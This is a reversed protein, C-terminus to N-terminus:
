SREDAGRRRAIVVLTVVLVAAGAAIKARHPATKESVKHTVPAAKEALRGMARQVPEPTAARVRRGVAKTQQRAAAVKERARTKVDLKESLADVTAALEARAEAIDARVADAADVEGSDTPLKADHTPDTM